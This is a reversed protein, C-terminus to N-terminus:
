ASQHVVLDMMESDPDEYNYMEKDAHPPESEKALRPQVIVSAGHGVDFLRMAHNRIQDRDDGCDKDIVRQGPEECFHMNCVGDGPQLDREDAPEREQKDLVRGDGDERRKFCIRPRENEDVHTSGEDRKRDAADDQARPSPALQLPLRDSGRLSHRIGEAADRSLWFM